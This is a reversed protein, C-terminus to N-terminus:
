RGTTQLQRLVKEPELALVAAVDLFEILDLRREGREYKSVYTQVRGLKEAVDAQSLKQARRADILLTRLRRYRASHVSATM